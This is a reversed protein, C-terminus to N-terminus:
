RGHRRHVELASVDHHGSGGAADPRREGPPEVAGARPDDDGVEVARPGGRMAASSSASGGTSRPRRRRRHRCRPRCRRGSRRRAAPTRGSRGTRRWRRRRGGPALEVRRSSSQSREKSTLMLAWMTPGGLLEHGLPQLAALAVEAGGRRGGPQEGLDSRRRVRHGLVGCDAEGFPEGDGVAVPAHLHAAQARLADVGAHEVGDSRGARCAGAAHDAGGALHEFRRLDGLDHGVHDAVLRNRM